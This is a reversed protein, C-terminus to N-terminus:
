PTKAGVLPWTKSGSCSGAGTLTTMV